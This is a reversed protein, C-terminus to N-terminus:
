GPLRAHLFLNIGEPESDVHLADRVIGAESGLRLLSDPTRYHLYWDGLLEMYSRSPNRDSFNGIVLEGGPRLFKYLRRLLLVFIRDNFYDFLGGSWILDYKRTPSFRVANVCHFRIRTLYAACLSSAFAIARPDQDVCDFEIPANPNLAFFEQMDRGPGSAVNLVAVLPSPSLHTVRTNLTNCFYAKRNRVATPAKQAHFFLDWNRLDPHETVHNCYIRDIMEFDGAYGAPKALAYGQM